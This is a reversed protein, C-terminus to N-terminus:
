YSNRYQQYFLYILILMIMFYYFIESIFKTYQLICYLSGVNFESLIVLILVYIYTHLITCTNMIYMRIMDYADSGWVDCSYINPINNGYNWQMIDICIIPNQAGLARLHIIVMCHYDDHSCLYSTLKNGNFRSSNRHVCM